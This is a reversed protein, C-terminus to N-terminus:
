KLKELLEMKKTAFEYDTLAGNNHLDALKEIQEEVTKETIYKHEIKTITGTEIYKENNKSIILKLISIAQNAIEMMNNYKTSGNVILGDYRINLMINPNDFDDVVISISM